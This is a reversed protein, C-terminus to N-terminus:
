KSIMFDSPRAGLILRFYGAGNKEIVKEVKGQAIVTEGKKAQECFRGRFSVIEKPSPAETGELIRAKSIAYRCPTLFSDTDDEIQAEIKAYGAPRYLRDGYKENVEDWDLVFRVFFDRGKFRGQSFKRRETRLFDELPMWTDKSRFEHLRELDELGYSSVMSNRRRILQRLAEHITICNERGYVILDIDSEKTHLNVLISGSLGLKGFPLGSSDYLLRTFEIAQTEFRDLNPKNLLESVKETPQYLKSILDKPVGELHEGFVPDYFLYQPYSGRLIKERESLSYVKIYTREGRKRDGSPDEIYRLYAVVRDPPHVLSKVDFILGELTEIFDGERAKLNQM